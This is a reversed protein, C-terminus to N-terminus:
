SESSKRCSLNESYSRQRLWTKWKTERKWKKKMQLLLKLTKKPFCSQRTLRPLCLKQDKANMQSIIKGAWNNKTPEPQKLFSKSQDFLILFLKKGLSFGHLFIHFANKVKKRKPKLWSAKNPKKMCKLLEEHIKKTQSFQPYVSCRKKSMELSKRAYWLKKHNSKHLM